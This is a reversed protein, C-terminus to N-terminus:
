KIYEQIGFSLILDDDEVSVNLLKYKYYIGDAGGEQVLLVVENSNNSDVYVKVVKNENQVTKTYNYYKPVNENNFDQEDTITLIAVIGKESSALIGPSYMEGDYWLTRDEIQFSDLEKPSYLKSYDFIPIGIHDRTFNEVIYYMEKTSLEGRLLRDTLAKFSEMTGIDIADSKMEDYYAQDSPTEYSNFIMYWQNEISKIEYSSAYVIEESSMSMDTSDSTDEPDSVKEWKSATIQAPYTERIYGDYTVDVISGIKVGIDDFGEVNIWIRDASQLEWEGEVPEILVVDGNIEIITARVIHDIVTEATSTSATTETSSTETGTTEAGTTDSTDDSAIKDCSIFVGLVLTLTLLLIILKKM